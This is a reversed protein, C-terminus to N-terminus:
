TQADITGCKTVSLVLDYSLESSCEFVVLIKLSDNQFCENLNLQSGRYTVVMSGHNRKRFHMCGTLVKSLLRCAHEM